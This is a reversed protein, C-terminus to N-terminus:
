YKDGDSVAVYKDHFGASKIHKTAAQQNDPHVYVKRKTPFAGNTHHGGFKEVNIDHDALHNEIFSDEMHSADEKLNKLTTMKIGKNYQKNILYTDRLSNYYLYM